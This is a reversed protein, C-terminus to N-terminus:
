PPNSCVAGMWDKGNLTNNANTGFFPGTNRSGCNTAIWSGSAAFSRVKLKANLYYPEQNYAQNSANMRWEANGPQGAEPGADNLNVLLAKNKWGHPVAVHCWNCRMSGIKDAHFSHGDENKDTLWFGTRVRARTAYITYSHCKFCLGTAQQGTGTLNNWQGKLIFDNNSGHPGWPNGNEGGDPIVSTASAVNSGHCDTCYMTQTGVANRWPLNWNNASLGGRVAPTRGTDDMVPHWSRHNNTPFASGAGSDTTTVEGKHSIPAQFEKAQNTYQTLNNTGFPTGPAGLNPRNGTPYTNNDSYGYDSHCKLCVQYERTVYAASVSTDASLGPDGRKVTYSLPLVQFSASGYVPEVGWAGRLVGSAINTHAYGATDTHTHTGAADPAGSISGANGIFSRFKVVRHPNHCDTCEAHRNALNGVGLKAREEIFDKGCQNAAGTCNVFGDSFNGGIDHVESGAPQESSAVPMRRLLQFDSRIDPVTTTPTIISSATDTHCQYCAQELAASGGSKPSTLSDTAERLLRRAGQVTHTDHCNLCAAKWVPLNAPFERQTAATANYTQTAVQNNAHASYAWTGSGQNKDHCSLCIIDNDKDHVNSAIAEQFRNQRLFKQNGKAADTERIHPDHCTGCQVQGVAGAGTSELPLLPRYGSSRVGIVNGVGPPWKQNVDVPRLEGDRTALTSTFSVSVPHDNTLSVGVNRTFGTSAGAGGPIVGGADTGTVPISQTGQDSGGQGNLVNVSGVALTGDHCSLCLKSSGGPQDLQGQIVGADLSSSTYATYTATSLTRNWLPTVGPTAGHPTHCFVCVQTEATAKVPGPGTTSLNHQTGRVDSIRQASASAPLLAAAVLLLRLFLRVRRDGAM